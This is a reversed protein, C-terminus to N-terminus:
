QGAVWRSMQETQADSSLSQYAEREADTLQVRRYGKQAFCRDYAEGFAKGQAKGKEFGSFHTHRLRASGLTGLLV